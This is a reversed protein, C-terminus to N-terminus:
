SQVFKVFDLQDKGRFRNIMSRIEEADGKVIFVELCKENKLHSHIQTQILDQHDHRIMDLDTSNNSEHVIILVGEVEGELGERERLEDESSRLCARIAESRGKLGFVDKMRDM